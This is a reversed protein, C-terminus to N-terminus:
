NAALMNETGMELRRKAEVTSLGITSTILDVGNREWIYEERDSLEDDEIQALKLDGIAVDM